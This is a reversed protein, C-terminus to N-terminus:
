GYHISPFCWCTFKSALHLDLCRECSSRLLHLEVKGSDLDTWYSQRKHYYRITVFLGICLTALTLVSLFCLIFILQSTSGHYTLMSRFELRSFFRYLNGRLALYISSTRINIEAEIPVSYTGDESYALLQVAYKSQKIEKLLYSHIRYSLVVFRHSGENNFLITSRWRLVYHSIQVSSESDIPHDWSIHLSSGSHSLQLNGPSSPRYFDTENSYYLYDVPLDSSPNMHITVLSSFTGLGLDNEAVITVEYTQRLKLDFLLFETANNPLVRIQNWNDKKKNIPRYWLVFHQPRGGDYGAQWSLFLNASRQEFHINMPAQPTTDIRSFSLVLSHIAVATMLNELSFLCYFPIWLKSYNCTLSNRKRSLCHRSVKSLWYHALIPQQTSIRPKVCMRVMIQRRSEHWRSISMSSPWKLPIRSITLIIQANESPCVNKSQVMQHFSGTSRLGRLAVDTSRTRPCSLDLQTQSSIPYSRHWSLTIEFGPFWQMRVKSQWTSPEVIRASAKPIKHAVFTNARIKQIAQNSWCLM